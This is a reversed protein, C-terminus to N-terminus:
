NPVRMPNVNPRPNFNSDVQIGFLLRPACSILSPVGWSYDGFIVVFDYVVVVVVVM